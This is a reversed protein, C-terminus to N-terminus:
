APRALKVVQAGGPTLRVTQSLAEGDVTIYGADRLGKLAEGYQAPDMASQAQLQFFPLSQQPEKALIDLLALPSALASPAPKNRNAFELYPRFTGPRPKFDPMPDITAYLFRRENIGV